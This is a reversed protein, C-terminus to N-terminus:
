GLMKNTNEWSGNLYRKQHLFKGNDNYNVEINEKNEEFNFYQEIQYQYIKTTVIQRFMKNKMAYSCLKVLDNATSYNYTNSLGHPNVFNSNFM